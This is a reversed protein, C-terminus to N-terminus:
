PMSESEEPQVTTTKPADRLVDPLVSEILLSPDELSRATALLARFPGRVTINFEFPIKALQGLARGAIMGSIGGASAPAAQVDRAVGDLQIETLFEGDLSGNLDISLRSYRLSKLADFALKGYTGLDKDTLEGIYSLTGGGPRAELHGDVIRGGREDFVMPIVGDFTGTAAINNFEFVQVFRAADMGVLRFTLRKPSPRSFDLITEELLLEGGAYPWRGSEVRVRLDPLLQYRILGDFVDIGTRILDVNAVQGPATQLGLLDTFRITTSLGEVPGFNAAFNMKETSFTGTSTTGQPSWAIEGQGKVSGRVLAVVGTTLRTLAEPQFGEGFTIGPVDLVARGTGTGLNHAIAVDTVHTSTEPDRLAGGAEIRNDRLTLRFNDSDLPYFRAPDAQDAVRLRGDLALAGGVLSWRGNAQSILLPVNAIQGDGGTFAGAVGRRDFRGSLSALDLRNVYGAGGLRIALNSSTFSPGDLAFRFRDAALRMPTGGLTGALRPARLEAGGQVAGGNSWVLARGTPCLPLRTAGFRFGAAELSRFSVNTCSEGFAFGGGGVRGRIPVVLGTVRGDGLPGDILAATEISTGRGEARFRVPALQLRAGGASLPAIRAEGSIPGGGRPQSLSLRTAPFGGGSLAFEGDTRVVGLPWYYTVGQGGALGLRAGSRSTADLRSVRVAGGDPGNVLAFAGDVDLARGARAVAAALAEGIPALPTGGVGSLAQVAPRLAADPVVIGRAGGDALLSLRNGDPSFAYQGDIAPRAARFGAIRGEAAALEVRGRTLARTGSFGVKGRLGALRDAGVRAERAEVTVGGLWSDLTEPVTLDLGFRPLVVDADLEPCLIRAAGAPGDLTPRRATVAVNAFGYARDVACGALLLRPAAMGIEGRFGNALNGRGEVALGIRGAPTDLSIAADALDVAQDPLRFPAGTPPPLLKDIQGLSLKGDVIRGFIRVGRATILEVKPARFGLSIQVEVWRAVADPRRPDGIVLNELRQTGFGIRKVEYSAQVGRRELERDIFDAAITRRQTWLIVIVFLVVLALGVAVLRWGQRRRRRTVPPDEDEM